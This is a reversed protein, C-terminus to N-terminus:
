EGEREERTLGDSQWSDCYATSRPWGNYIKCNPCEYKVYHKCNGCCKLSEIEYAMEDIHQLVGDRSGRWSELEKKLVDREEWAKGLSEELLNKKARWVEDRKELAEFRRLLEAKFDNWGVGCKVILEKVTMDKM